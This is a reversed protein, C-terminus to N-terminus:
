VSLEGPLFGLHEYNELKFHEVEYTVEGHKNLITEQYDVKIRTPKLSAEDYVLQDVVARELYVRAQDLHNKYLHASGISYTVEGPKLGAEKAMLLLFLSAAVVDFPLGLFVDASRQTVMLNLKGGQRNFQYMVPCPPLAAIDIETPNWLNIIIRRSDPNEKVDRIANKLQDVLGEYARFHRPYSYPIDGDEDIWANWFKVGNEVLYSADTDGRLYWLFEVLAAKFNVKKYRLIPFDAESVPFKLQAGFIELTGTGTRDTQEIGNELIDAVLDTYLREFFNSPRLKNM